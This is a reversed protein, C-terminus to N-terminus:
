HSGCIDVSVVCRDRFDIGNYGIWVHFTDRGAVETTRVNGIGRLLIISIDGASDLNWLKGGLSDM